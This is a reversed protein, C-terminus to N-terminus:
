SEFVLTANINSVNVKDTPMALGNYKITFTLNRTTNINLVDGVKVEEGTDTYTLSYTINSCVTSADNTAVTPDSNTGVCIPSTKVYSSITAPIVGNNKLDFKYTVSEGLATFLVKVNTLSTAKLNPNSDVSANGSITADSLNTFDVKFAPSMNASGNIKLNTSITAFAISISLIALSLATLAIIKTTKNKNM